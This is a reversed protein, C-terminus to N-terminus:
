PTAKGGPTLVSALSAVSGAEIVQTEAVGQEAALAEQLAAVRRDRARRELEETIARAHAQIARRQTTLETLQDNLDEDSVYPPM